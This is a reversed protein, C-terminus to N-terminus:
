KIQNGDEDEEEEEKLPKLQLISDLTNPSDIYENLSLTCVNLSHSFLDDRDISPKIDM